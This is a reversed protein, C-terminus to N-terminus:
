YCAVIWRCLTFIAALTQDGPTIVLMSAMMGLISLIAIEALETCSAGGFTERAVWYARKLWIMGQM